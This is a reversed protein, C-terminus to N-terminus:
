GIKFLILITATRTTIDRIKLHTTHNVIFNFFYFALVSLFIPFLHSSACGASVEEDSGRDLSKLRMKKLDPHNNHSLAWCTADRSKRSGRNNDRPDAQM